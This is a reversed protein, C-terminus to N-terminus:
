APAISLGMAVLRNTFLGDDEVVHKEFGNCFNPLITHQCGGPSNAGEESRSGDQIQWQGPIYLTDSVHSGLPTPPERTHFRFHWWKTKVYLKHIHNATSALSM